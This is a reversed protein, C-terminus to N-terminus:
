TRQRWLLTVFLVWDHVNSGDYFHGNPDPQFNIFTTKAYQETGGDIVVSLTGTLKGIKTKLTDLDAKLAQPTAYGDMTLRCTILRGYREGIIHAEGVVGFWQGPVVPVDYEGPVVVGHNHGFFTFGDHTLSVTSPHPNPTQPNQDPSTAASNLAPPNGAGVTM